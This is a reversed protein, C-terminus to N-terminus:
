SLVEQLFLQNDIKESKTPPYFVEALPKKVMLSTQLVRFVAQASAKIDYSKKQIRMILYIILASLIQIKVANISRGVYKKIKLNQKIWKFFLEIQWRKKYLEAIEKASRKFDNTVIELNNEWEPVDVVILRLSKTYPNKKKKNKSGASIRKSTLKIKEDSLIHKVKRKRSSVKKYVCNKKLRTIFYAEENNVENWFTYDTYGKDMVYSCGKEIKLDTKAFEIDSKRAHSISFYTPVEDMVDYVMHIKMGSGRAWGFKKGNLEVTTADVASIVSKTEKFLHPHYKQLLDYFVKEFIKYSRNNNADSLTSRQIKNRCGLHYLQEQHSNFSTV